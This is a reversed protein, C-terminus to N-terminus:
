EKRKKREKEKKRKREKKRRMKQIRTTMKELKEKEKKLLRISQQKKRKKKDSPKEHYMRDRLEKAIGSKSYKKRFRKLLEEVHEGKRRVVCIGTHEGSHYNKHYSSVQIDNV